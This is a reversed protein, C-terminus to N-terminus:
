IFKILISVNHDVIVLATINCFHLSGVRPKFNVIRNLKVIICPKGDKFGYTDDSEGSCGRLWHRPFRCAKRMGVDNELDGRVRYASPVDTFPVFVFFLVNSM